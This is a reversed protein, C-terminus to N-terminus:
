FLLLLFVISAMIRRSSGERVAFHVFGNKNKLICTIEAAGLIRPVENGFDHGDLKYNRDRVLKQSM